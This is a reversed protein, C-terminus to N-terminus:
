VINDRNLNTEAGEDLIHGHGFFVILLFSRTQLGLETDRRYHRAAIM